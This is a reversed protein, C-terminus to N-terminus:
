PAPHEPLPRLLRLLEWLGEKLKPGPHLLDQSSLRVWRAEKLGPLTMLSAKGESNDAADVVVEPGLKLAQEVSFVPYPTVANEVVNVGGADKLLEDAFSGPGAVVLPSFGYVFLVRPHPRTRAQERVQARASRLEQALREGEVKAGLAEGVAHFAQLVDEVNKLPLALVPMGLEALKEVPRQNGPSPQVLLLDPRLVM